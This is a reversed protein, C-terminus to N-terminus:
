MSKPLRVWAGCGNLSNCLCVLEVELDNVGVNGLSRETDFIQLEVLEPFDWRKHPCISVFQGLANCYSYVTRERIRPRFQVRGYM